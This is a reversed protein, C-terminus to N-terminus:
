VVIAPPQCGQCQCTAYDGAPACRDCVSTGEPGGIVKIPRDPDLPVMCIDCAWRALDEASLLGGNERLARPHQRVWLARHARPDTILTNM